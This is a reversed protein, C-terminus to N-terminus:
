IRPQRTRNFFTGSLPSSFWISDLMNLKAWRNFFTGSLPSSFMELLRNINNHKQFISFLGRYLPRFCERALEVANELTSQFFDGIFPVFVYDKQSGKCQYAHLQNFFTGSLPSSFRQFTNGNGKTGNSQFFDGIFPVFVTQRPYLSPNLQDRNFFTGSLPSSFKAWETRYKVLRQEPNFFTGSLPSSFM